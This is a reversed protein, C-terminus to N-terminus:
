YHLQFSVYKQHDYEIHVGYKKGNGFYDKIVEGKYGILILIKKFKNRVNEEIIYELFPFNFFKIMPKPKNITLPLLRKGLGGALIVVQNLKIHNSNLLEKKNM